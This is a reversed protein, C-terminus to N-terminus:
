ATFGVIGYLKYCNETANWVYAIAYAPSSYVQISNFAHAELSLRFSFGTVNEDITFFVGKTDKNMSSWREQLMFPVRTVTDNVYLYTQLNQASFSANVSNVVIDFSCARDGSNSCRVRIENVEGLYFRDVSVDISYEVIAVRYVFDIQYVLLALTLAVAIYILINRKRRYKQLSHFKLLLVFVVILVALLVVIYPFAFHIRPEIGLRPFPLAANHPLV